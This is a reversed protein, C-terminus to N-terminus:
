RNIGCRLYLTAEAGALAARAGTAAASAASPAPIKERPFPPDFSRVSRTWPEEFAERKDKGDTALRPFGCNLLIRGDSGSTLKVSIRFCVDRLERPDIKLDRCMNALLDRGIEKWRDQPHHIRRRFVAAMAEREEIAVFTCAVNMQTRAGVRREFEAGKLGGNDSLETRADLHPRTLCACRTRPSRRALRDAPIRTKFHNMLFQNCFLISGTVAMADACISVDFGLETELRQSMGSPATRTCMQMPETYAHLLKLRGNVRQKGAAWMAACATYLKLRSQDAPISRPTRRVM